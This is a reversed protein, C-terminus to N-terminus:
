DKGSIFPTELKGDLFETLEGYKEGEANAALRELEAEEGMRIRNSDIQMTKLLNM